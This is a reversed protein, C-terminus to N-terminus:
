WPVETKTGTPHNQTGRPEAISYAKRILDGIKQYSQDYTETSHLKFKGTTAWFDLLQTGDPNFVRFHGNTFERYRVKGIQLSQRCLEIRQFKEDTSISAM